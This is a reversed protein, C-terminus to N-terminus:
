GIKHATAANWVAKAFEMLPGIASYGDGSLEEMTEFHHCLNAVPSGEGFVLVVRVCSADQQYISPEYEAPMRQGLQPLLHGPRVREFTMDGSEEDRVM